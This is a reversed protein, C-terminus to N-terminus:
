NKAQRRLCSGLFTRVMLGSSEDVDVSVSVSSGGGSPKMLHGIRRASLARRILEPPVLLTTRVVGDRSTVGIPQVPVGAYSDLTVEHRWQRVAAPEIPAAGEYVSGFTTKREDCSFFVTVRGDATVQRGQLMTGGPVPAISWEPPERGDNVVRLNRAEQSSLVYMEDPAAKEWLDMLRPDITMEHMYSGIATSLDQGLDREGGSRDAPLSARHVGYRAGHDIFRHVGGLFALACASYCEGPLLTRSDIIHTSAGRARIIRGLQMGAFANGGRSHLWVAVKGDIGGLARSLRDPAGADIRGDLYVLATDGFAGSGSRPAVRVTMPATPEAALAAPVSQGAGGIWLLVAALVGARTM